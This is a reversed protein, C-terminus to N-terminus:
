DADIRDSIWQVAGRWNALDARDCSKAHADPRVNVLKSMRDFEWRDIFIGSFVSWEKTVVGCLELWYLKDLIQESSLNQLKERRDPPVCALIRAKASSKTKNLNSDQKLLFLVMSRLKKETLNRKKGIVALEEAWEEGDIALPVQADSGSADTAIEIAASLGEFAVPSSIEYDSELSTIGYQQLIRLLNRPQSQATGDRCAILVPRLEPFSRLLHVFAVQAIIRGEDRAFENILTEVVDLPLELPREGIALQRHIFSCGKRIWFPQDNCAAAVLNAADDTFGLGALRGLKRIMALSAGRAFRGMYEEPVFLLASNEVGDISEAAFWKSSVGSVVLSLPHNSRVAEQYVARLSRWFSNFNSLWSSTTPSSPTLYDLEDLAIIVPLRALKIQDILYAEAADVSTPAAVARPTAYYSQTRHATEIAAGLSALLQAADQKWVADRSCDCFVCIASRSEQVLRFTRSLLSTKGSKRIGFCARIQGALLKRALEAAEDRRGFFHLDEVVPGTVDFPDHSFLEHCLTREVSEPRLVEASEIRLPLISLNKERGWNKLKQDGQPDKHVLVMVTPELRGDEHEIVTKAAELIRPQQEGFNNVLLLIERDVGLAAAMRRSPKAFLHKYWGKEFLFYESNHIEFLGHLGPILQEVMRDIETKVYAPPVNAGSNRAM